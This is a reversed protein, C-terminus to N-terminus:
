EFEIKKNSDVDIRFINWFIYNVDAASTEALVDKVFEKFEEETLWNNHDTDYKDFYARLEDWILQVFDLEKQSVGEPNAPAEKKITLEINNGLYKKIFDCYQKFTIFGDKDDDLQDFIWELDERTPKVKIFFCAEHILAVFEAKSIRNSKWVESNASHYRRRFVIEIFYISLIIAILEDFTLAEQKRAEFNFYNMLFYKVEEENLEFVKLLIDSIEDYEFLLNKNYDYLFFINRLQEVLIRVFRDWPNLDKLSNLFEQEATLAVKKDKEERVQEERAVSLSGFYYRLFLFYVVYTIWGDGDLDIEKFLLAILDPPAQMGIYDLAHNLTTGFEEQNMIREAGKSYFKKRHLRQIAMEGFHQEVCFNTMEDFTIINNNDKDYRFVNATLYHLDEPSSKLLETM